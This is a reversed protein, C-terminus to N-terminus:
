EELKLCAYSVFWDDLTRPIKDANLKALEWCSELEFNEWFWDREHRFLEHLNFYEWQITEVLIAIVWDKYAWNVQFKQPLMRSEYYCLKEEKAM